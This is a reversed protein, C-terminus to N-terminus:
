YKKFEYVKISSTLSLVHEIKFYRTACVERMSFYCIALNDGSLPHLSHFELVILALLYVYYSSTLLGLTTIHEFGLHKRFHNHWPILSNELWPLYNTPPRIAWDTSGCYTNRPDWTQIETLSYMLLFFISCFFFFHLHKL